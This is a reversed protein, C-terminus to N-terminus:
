RLGSLRKATQDHLRRAILLAVPLHEQCASLGLLFRTANAIQARHHAFEYALLLQYPIRPLSPLFDDFQRWPVGCALVDSGYCAVLLSQLPIIMWGTSLRPTM